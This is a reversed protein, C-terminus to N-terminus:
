DNIETYRKGQVAVLKSALIEDCCRCGTEQKTDHVRKLERALKRINRNLMILNVEVSRLPPNQVKDKAYDIAMAMMDKSSMSRQRGESSRIKDAREKASLYLQQLMGLAEKSRDPHDTPEPRGHKFACTNRILTCLLAIKYLKRMPNIATSAYVNERQDM